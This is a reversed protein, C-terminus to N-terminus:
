DISYYWLETQMDIVTLDAANLIRSQTEAMEWRESKCICKGNQIGWVLYAYKKGCLTAANSMASIYAGIQYPEFWNEKFEYWEEENNRAILTKVIEIYKEM